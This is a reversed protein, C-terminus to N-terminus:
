DEEVREREQLIPQRKEEKYIFLTSTQCINHVQTTVTEDCDGTGRWLSGRGVGWGSGGKAERRRGAGEAGEEPEAWDMAGEWAAVKMFSAMSFALFAASSCARMWDCNAM